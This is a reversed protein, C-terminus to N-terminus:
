RRNPIRHAAAFACGGFLRDRLTCLSRRWIWGVREGSVEEIEARKGESERVLAVRESARAFGEADFVPLKGDLLM